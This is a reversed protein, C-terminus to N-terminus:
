PNSDARGTREIWKQVLPSFHFAGFLVCGGWFSFLGAVM